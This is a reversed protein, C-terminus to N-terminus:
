QCRFWAHMAEFTCTMTGPCPTAANPDCLFRVSASGSATCNSTSSVCQITTSISGASTLHVCCIQTGGCDTADDCEQQQQSGSCNGNGSCKGATYVDDHCCVATGTCVASGCGIGASGTSCTAAVNTVDAGAVTGSGNAVTCREHNPATVVTVLYASGDTLKQAFTFPGDGAVALMDSGNDALVFGSGFVGIASGGITYSMGNSSGSGSGVCEGAMPGDAGYRKGSACAPDPYSCYMDAECTGQMGAHQCFTNSNCQYSVTRLCAVALALTLAVAVVVVRM